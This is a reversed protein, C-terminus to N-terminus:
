RVSCSGSAANSKITYRWKTKPGYFGLCPGDCYADRANSNSTYSIFKCNKGDYSFKYTRKTTRREAPDKEDETIEVVGNRYTYRSCIDRKYGEEIELKTCVASGKGSISGATRVSQGNAFVVGAPVDPEAVFLRDGNQRILVAQRVTRNSKETLSGKNTGSYYDTQEVRTNATFFLAKGEFDLAAPATRTAQPSLAEDTSSSQCGLLASSLAGVLGVFFYNAM